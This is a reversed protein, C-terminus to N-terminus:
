PRVVQADEVSFDGISIRRLKSLTAVTCLRRGLLEAVSRIYTGSRVDLLLTIRDKDYSLFNVNLVEMDKVPPSISEGKRAYSYLPRGAKKVASYLPVQLAHVGKLSEVTRLVIENNLPPIAKEETIKGEIDGTETSCGLLIEAEYVKDLKLYQNLKKTGSGVGVIMLGTAMPDLTGAHGMKRIGMKKRLIRIVDFSTIGPPKDILLIESIDKDM